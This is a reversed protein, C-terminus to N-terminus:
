TFTFMGFCCTGETQGITSAARRRLSSLAFFRASHVIRVNSVLGMERVAICLVQVLFGFLSEGM